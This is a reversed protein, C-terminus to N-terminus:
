FWRSKINDYEGSRSIQSLASNIKDLLETDGKRVAIGYSEESLLDGVTKANGKLRIYEQTTPYDNLVADIQGNEMDIFAAGINDFSFVTVGQLSKAYREGTTGLQAGVKLGRLDDVSKITTDELPVAIIQGAKYYSESFDVVALRQPTISMASIICDYKKGRLGPIIGDFPTVIFEPKWGNILCIKKMIDIDFGEPQGSETNVMEFPPYTADTGIKLIGSTKWLPEKQDATCGSLFGICIILYFLLRKM